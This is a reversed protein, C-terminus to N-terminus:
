GPESSPSVLASASVLVLLIFVVDAMALHLLQTAIPVLLSLNLVGVAVQLATVATVAKCLSSLTSPGPHRARIATSAGIVCASALLAFLPHLTRIRLFLHASPSLDQALGAALSRAPFLTDGLAAIAGSAFALALGFFALMVPFLLPQHRHLRIAAGGPVQDSAYTATLTLAGLLFFTNGAHLEMSIGRLLSADHAVLKLLVLAAGIFVEQWILVVSLFATTRAPHGRPTDRFTLMGLAMVAALAVGSSVRHSLEILTTISPARPLVEGNCMPWHNGCGAGSGTARVYAGWQIVLLNGFLVAWAFRPLRAVPWIRVPAAMPAVPLLSEGSM